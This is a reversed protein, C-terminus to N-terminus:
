FKKLLWALHVLDEKPLNRTASEWVAILHYAQFCQALDKLEERDAPFLCGTFVLTKRLLEFEEKTILKFACGLLLYAIALSRPAASEINAVMQLVTPKSFGHSNLRSRHTGKFFWRAVGGDSVLNGQYLFFGLLFYLAYKSPRLATSLAPAYEVWDQIRRVIRCIRTEISAEQYGMSNRSVLGVGHDFDERLTQQMYAQWAGSMQSLNGKELQQLLVPQRHATCVAAGRKRWERRLGPARMAAVDDALCQACFRRNEHQKVANTPLKFRAAFHTRLPGLFANVFVESRYLDDYELCKAKGGTDPSRPNGLLIDPDWAKEEVADNTEPVVHNSWPAQSSDRGTSSGSPKAVQQLLRTCWDLFGNHITRVSAATANRSLWSGLTEDHVPTLFAYFFQNRKPNFRASQGNSGPSNGSFGNVTGQTAKAAPQELLGGALTIRSTGTPKLGAAPPIELALELQMEIQRLVPTGFPLTLQSNPPIRSHDLLNLPLTETSGVFNQDGHIGNGNNPPAQNSPRNLVNEGLRMSSSNDLSDDQFVSVEPLDSETSGVDLRTSYLFNSFDPAAPVVLDITKSQGCIKSEAILGKVVSVTNGVLGKTHVHLTRVDLGQRTVPSPELALFSATGLQTQEATLASEIHPPDAPSETGTNLSATQAILAIPPLYPNIRNSRDWAVVDQVFTLYSEDCSMAELDVFEMEIGMSLARNGVITLPDYLGCLVVCYGYPPKTLQHVSDYVSRIKSPYKHFFDHADECIVAKYHRLHFAAVYHRGVRRGSAIDVSSTPLGLSKLLHSSLVFDTNFPSRHVFVSRIMKRSLMLHLHSAFASAGAGAEGRVIILKGHADGGQENILALVRELPAQNASSGIWHRGM